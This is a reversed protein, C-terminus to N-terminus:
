CARDRRAQAASGEDGAIGVRLTAGSVNAEARLRVDASVNDLNLAGGGDIVVSVKPALRATLSTRALVQRLEVALANADLIEEADLGALANSLVPM